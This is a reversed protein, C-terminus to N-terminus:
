SGIPASSRDVQALARRENQLPQTQGTALHGISRACCSARSAQRSPVTGGRRGDFVSGQAGFGNRRGTDRRDCRCPNTSTNGAGRRPRPRRAHEPRLPWQDLPEGASASRAVAPHSCRAASTWEYSWRLPHDPAQQVALGEGRDERLRESLADPERWCLNLRVRRRLLVVGRSRMRCGRHHSRRGSTMCSSSVEGSISFSRRPVLPPRRASPAARAPRIVGHDRGGVEVREVGM